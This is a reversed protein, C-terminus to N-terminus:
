KNELEKKYVAYLEHLSNIIQEGNESPIKKHYILYEVRKIIRKMVRFEYKMPTELDDSLTFVPLRNRGLLEIKRHQKCFFEFDLDSLCHFQFIEGARSGEKQRYTFRM